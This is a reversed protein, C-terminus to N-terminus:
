VIHADELRRPDSSRKIAQVLVQDRDWAMIQVDGYLNQIVVRGNPCLSYTQRFETKPTGIINAYLSSGACLALVIGWTRKSGIMAGGKRSIVTVCCGTPVPALARGTRKVWGKTSRRSARKSSAATSCVSRGTRSSRM